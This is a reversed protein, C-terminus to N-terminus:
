EAWAAVAMDGRQDFARRKKMLWEIWAQSAKLPNIGHDRDYKWRKDEDILLEHAAQIKIFRAEAIEGKGLAGRGDYICVLHVISTLDYLCVTPTISSLLGGTHSRSKRRM